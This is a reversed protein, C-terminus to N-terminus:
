AAQTKGTDTVMNTKAKYKKYAYYSIGGLVGLIFTNRLFKSSPAPELKNCLAAISSKPNKDAYNGLTLGNKLPISRVPAKCNYAKAFNAHGKEIFSLLGADNVSEQWFNKLIGLDRDKNLKSFEKPDAPEEIEDFIDEFRNKFTDVMKVIGPFLVNSRNLLFFKIKEDLSKEYSEVSKEYEAKTLNGPNLLPGLVIAAGSGEEFSDPYTDIIEKSPFTFHAPFEPKVKHREIFRTYGQKIFPLCDPYKESLEYVTRLAYTDFEKQDFASSKAKFNKGHILSDIGPFLSERLTTRSLSEQVDKLDHATMHDIIAMVESHLLLEYVKDQFDKGSYSSYTSVSSIVLCLLLKKMLYEM